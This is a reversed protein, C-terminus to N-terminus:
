RKPGMTTGRVPVSGANPNTAGAPATSGKSDASATDYELIANELNRLNLLERGKALLARRQAGSKTPDPDLADMQQKIDAVKADISEAAAKPDKTIPLGLSRRQMSAQARGIGNTRALATPMEEHLIQLGGKPYGAKADSDILEAIRNRENGSIAKMAPNAFMGTDLVSLRSKADQAEQRKSYNAGGEEKGKSNVMDLLQTGVSNPGAPIQRNILADQLHETAAKVEDPTTAMHVERTVNGIVNPDGLGGNVAGSATVSDIRLHYVELDKPLMLRESAAQDLWEHTLNGYKAPDRLKQEALTMTAESLEKNMRDTEERERRARGSQMTLLHEGRAEVHRQLELRKAPDLHKLYTNGSKPGEGSYLSQQQKELTQAYATADDPSQFAGLMKGTKDYQQIAEDPSMVHGDDAVTPVLVTHGKDDTFSMSRVTSKSGDPNKVVPRDSLNINGPALLGAPSADAMFIPQNAELKFTNLSAQVVTPDDSVAARLARSTAGAVLVSNYRKDAEARSMHGAQVGVMLSDRYQKLEPLDSGDDPGTRRSQIETIQRARDQMQADFADGRNQHEVKYSHRQYEILKPGIKAELAASAQPNLGKFWEKRKEEVTNAFVSKANYGIEPSDFTETMNEMDRSMQMARETSVAEADLADRRKMVQGLTNGLNETAQGLQGLQKTFPDTPIEPTRQGPINTTVGGYTPLIPM